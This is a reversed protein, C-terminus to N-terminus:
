GICHPNEAEVSGSWMIFMPAGGAIPPFGNPGKQGAVFKIDVCGDPSRNAVAGHAMHIFVVWEIAIIGAVAAALIPDIQVLSAGGIAAHFKAIADRIDTSDPDNVKRTLGASAYLTNTFTGPNLVFYNNHVVETEASGTFASQRAWVNRWDNQVETSTYFRIDVGTDGNVLESYDAPVPASCAGMMSIAVAVVLGVMATRAFNVPARKPARRPVVTTPEISM